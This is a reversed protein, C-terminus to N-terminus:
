PVEKVTMGAYAPHRPQRELRAEESTMDAFAPIVITNSV